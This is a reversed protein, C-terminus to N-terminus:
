ASRAAQSDSALAAVDARRVRPGGPILTVRRLRGEAFMRYLTSRSVGLADAAERIRMLQPDTNM